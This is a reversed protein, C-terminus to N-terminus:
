VRVYLMHGLKILIPDFVSSFFEACVFLCVSLCVFWCVSRFYHDSPQSGFTYCYLFSLYYKADQLAWMLVLSWGLEHSFCYKKILKQFSNVSFECDSLKMLTLRYVNYLLTWKGVWTNYSHLSTFHKRIRIHLKKHGHQTLLFFIVSNRIQQLRAHLFSLIQM